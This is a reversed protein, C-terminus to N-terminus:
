AIQDFDGTTQCASLGDGGAIHRLEAIADADGRVLLSYIM